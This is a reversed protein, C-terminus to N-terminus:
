LGSEIEIHAVDHLLKIAAFKEYCFAVSRVAGM